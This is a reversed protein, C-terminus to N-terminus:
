IDKKSNELLADLYERKERSSMVVYERGRLVKEGALLEMRASEEHDPEPILSSAKKALTATGAVAVTSLLAGKLFNRRSSHRKMRNEVVLPSEPNSGEGNREDRKDMM